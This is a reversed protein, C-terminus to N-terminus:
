TSRTGVRSAISRIRTLLRRSCRRPRRGRCRGWRSRLARGVSAPRTSRTASCDRRKPPGYAVLLTTGDVRRHLLDAVLEVSAQDAWHLDDLVLVLRREAALLALLARVASHLQSPEPRASEPAELQELAPFIRGIVAGRGEGLTSLGRPGLSGLYADLADIFVGFPLQREFESARGQAIVTRRDTVVPLAEALLTSKGIGPDGVIAAASSGERVGTGLVAELAGLEVQRGLLQTVKSVM